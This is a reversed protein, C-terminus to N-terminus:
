FVVIQKSTVLRNVIEERRAELVSELALSVAVELGARMWDTRGRKRKRADGNATMSEEPCAALVAGALVAIVPPCVANGFMLYLRKRYARQRVGDDLDAGTEKRPLPPLRFWNPVGQVRACERPTFLWPPRSATCPTLQSNGKGITIGYHGDLTDLVKDPWALKSPKWRKSRHLLQDLQGTSLRYTEMDDLTSRRSSCTALSTACNEYEIIDKARLGLDPIFLFRFTALSGSTGKDDKDHLLGVFFLRKRSQATLGRATVVESQVNYGVGRLSEVIEKLSDGMDALGPVNELLFARPRSVRLARVIQTYLM